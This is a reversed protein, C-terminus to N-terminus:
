LIFEFYPRNDKINCTYYCRASSDMQMVGDVFSKQYNKNYDEFVDDRRNVYIRRRSNNNKYEDVLLGYVQYGHHPIVLKEFCRLDNKVEDPWSYYSVDAPLLVIRNNVRVVIIIGNDNVNANGVNDVEGIYSKKQDTLPPVGGNGTYFSTNPFMKNLM